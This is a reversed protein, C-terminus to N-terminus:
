HSKTHVNLWSDIDKWAEAAALAHYTKEGERLFAHGADRYIKIEYEKQAKKLLLRTEDIQDMPISPDKEGYLLFVPCHIQNLENLFPTFGIGKRPQTMGGGYCSIAFDVHLRCAGLISTFGGMCFGIIGIKGIKLNKNNKLYNFTVQVDEVLTENSLKGLAEMVSPIDSYPIQYGDKIRHFLEPAIAIFGLRAFRECIAQITENVGFAEQLVIIAPAATNSVLHPYHLHVTMQGGQTDLTIKETKAM